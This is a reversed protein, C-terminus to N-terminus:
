RKDGEFLIVGREAPLKVGEHRRQRWWLDRIGQLEGPQIPRLLFHGTLVQFYHSGTM